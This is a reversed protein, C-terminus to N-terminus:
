ILDYPLARVWTNIVFQCCKGVANALSLVVVVLPTQRRGRCLSFGSSSCSSVKLVGHLSSLSSLSASQELSVPPVPRQITLYKRSSIEHDGDKCRRRDLFASFGKM